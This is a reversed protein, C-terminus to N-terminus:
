SKRLHANLVGNNIQRINNILCIQPNQDYQMHAYVRHVLMYLVLDTSANISDLLSM